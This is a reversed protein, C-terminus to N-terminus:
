AFSSGASQSRMLLCSQGRGAVNCLALPLTNERFRATGPATAALPLCFAHQLRPSSLNVAVTGAATRSVHLHPIWYMDTDLVVHRCCVPSSHFKENHM